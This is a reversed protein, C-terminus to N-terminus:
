WRGKINSTHDVPGPGTKSPGDCKIRGKLTESTDGERGDEVRRRRRVRDRTWSLRTLLQAGKKGVM